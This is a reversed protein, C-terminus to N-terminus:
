TLKSSISVNFIKYVDWKKELYDFIACKYIVTNKAQLMFRPGANRKWDGATVGGSKEEVWSVTEQKAPCELTLNQGASAPIEEELPEDVRQM